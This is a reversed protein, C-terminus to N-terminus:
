SPEDRAHEKELTRAFDPALDAEHLEAVTTVHDGSAALLWHRKGAAVVFVSRQPDLVLRDVLRLTKAGALAQGLAPIRAKLVKLAWYGMLLLAVSVLFFQFLYTAFPLEPAAAVESPWAPAAQHEGLSAPSAVGTANPTVFAPHNHADPM